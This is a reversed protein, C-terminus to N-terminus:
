RGIILVEKSKQVALAYKYEKSSVCEVNDKYKKMIEILEDISPIGDARYSVVIISDKYKRFLKDFADYIENKKAWVSTGRGIIPKHKLRSILMENWIDYNVIGELFHYFDVYDTGIGKGSIYPSDIYVLDIDYEDEPLELADYNISICKKHNNFVANNAEKVFNRFHQEFSTDWTKKNGFSREVENTRVYLNKRHFLNYPRKIICAQFLAFWAISQKYENEINKINTVVVDLWENEEHLYFIDKFNDQIFTPYEINSHKTLINLIDDKNLTETTNEILAKGIISNFKLLDNYIVNKGKQKFMYSVCGTGGFVDLVTNFHIDEINEWLWDLIKSKSGQYRTQPFNQEICIKNENIHEKGIKTNSLEEIQDFRLQQIKIM